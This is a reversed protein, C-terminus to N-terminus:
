PTVERLRYGLRQMCEATGAEQQAALPGYLVATMSNRPQMTSHRYPAMQAGYQQCQMLHVQATQNDVTDNWWMYRKPAACGALLLVCGLALARRIM